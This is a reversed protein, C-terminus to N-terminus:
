VIRATAVSLRPLSVVEEAVATVTVEPVAGAPTTTVTGALRATLVVPVRLATAVGVAGAVRVLMWNKALPVASPLSVVNGYEKDNLGVAVPM